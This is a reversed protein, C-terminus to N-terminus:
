TYEEVPCAMQVRGTDHWQVICLDLKADLGLDVLHHLVPYEAGEANLKLVLPRPLAEILSALDFTKIQVIKEDAPAVDDTYSGWGDLVLFSGHGHVWAAARSRVVTTGNINVTGPRLKPWPDFGLLLKPHFRGILRRISDHGHHVACGVDIVILAMGGRPLAAAEDAVRPNGM